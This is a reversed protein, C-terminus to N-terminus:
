PGPPSTPPTTAPAPPAPAILVANIGHVYGDTGHNDPSVISATASSGTITQADGDVTLTQGGQTPLSTEAFIAVTDLEGSVVHANVLEAATIPDLVIEAGGPIASIAGNTPALVTGGLSNQLGATTVAQAFM